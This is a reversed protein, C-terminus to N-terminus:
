RMDQGPNFGLWTTGGDRSIFSIIDVGSPTLTPVAGPSWDVSAPWNVTQAGGDTIELTFSAVRGSAPPNSFTFTTTGTLAGTYFYTGLDLDLDVTGITGVSNAKETYKTLNIIRRVAALLVINTGDYHFMAIGVPLDGAVIPNGDVDVINKIGIANVNMTSAGTNEAHVQAMFFMGDFYATYGANLTVTYANAVGTTLLSGNLDAYFRKMTGQVARGTNNVESYNMNEPWGNPPTANNNADTVDWDNLESM